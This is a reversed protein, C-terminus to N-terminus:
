RLIIQKYQYINWLATIIVNHVIQDINANAAAAAAVEHLAHTIFM